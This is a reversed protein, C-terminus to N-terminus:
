NTIYQELNNDGRRRYERIMINISQNILEINFLNPISKIGMIVGKKLFKFRNIFDPHIPVVNENFDRPLDFSDDLMGAIRVMNKIDRVLHRFKPNSRNEDSIGALYISATFGLDAVRLKISEDLNIESRRKESLKNWINLCSIFIEKRNLPLTDLFDKLYGMSEVYSDHIKNGTEPIFNSQNRLFKIAENAIRKRLSSDSCTDVIDDAIGCATVIVEINEIEQDSLNIRHIEAVSKLIRPFQSDPHFHKAQEISM